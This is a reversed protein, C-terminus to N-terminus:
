FFTPEQRVLNDWEALCVKVNRLWTVSEEQVTTGTPSIIYINVLDGTATVVAYETKDDITFQFLIIIKAFIKHIGNKWM